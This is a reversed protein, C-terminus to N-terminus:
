DDLHVVDLSTCARQLNIVVSSRSGLGLNNEGPVTRTNNIGLVVVGSTQAVIDRNIEVLVTVAIYPEELLLGVVLEVTEVYATEGVEAIRGLKLQRSDAVVVTHHVADAVVLVQEGRRVHCHHPQEVCLSGNQTLEFPHRSRRLYANTM